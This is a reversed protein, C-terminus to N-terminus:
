TLQKKIQEGGRTEESAREKSNTYLQNTNRVKEGINIYYLVVALTERATFQKFFPFIIGTPYTVHYHIM